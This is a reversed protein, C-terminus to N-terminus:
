RIRCKVYFDGGRSALGSSLKQVGGGAPLLPCDSFL